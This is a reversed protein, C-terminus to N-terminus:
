APEQNILLWYHGAQAVAASFKEFDMPKVIYSNVGLDCTRVVDQEERSSTLVVVPLRQTRPDARIARLVEIGDVKPLKLDLLVVKPRQNVDRDVYEGAGFLWDLAEQGDKVHVIHNALKNTKLARLSIEADRPNDEVLLIEVSHTHNKM